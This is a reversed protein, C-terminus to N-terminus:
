SETISFFWSAATKKLKRHDFGFQQLKKSSETISVRCHKTSGKTLKKKGRQSQFVSFQQLEKSTETNSLCRITATKKLRKHNFLV